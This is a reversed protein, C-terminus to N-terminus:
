TRAGRWPKPRDENHPRRWPNPRGSTIAKRQLKEIRTTTTPAAHVMAGACANATDDHGSRAHDVFDRGVRSTRRELRSLQAILRPNDLLLAAGNMLQPLFNLYLESKAQDSVEYVIEHARFAERPWEGAYRDGRM